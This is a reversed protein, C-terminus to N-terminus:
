ALKFAKSFMNKIITQKPKQELGPQKNHLIEGEGERERERTNKRKKGYYNNLMIDTKTQLTNFDEVNQNQNGNYNSLPIKPCKAEIMYKQLLSQQNSEDPAQVRAKDKSFIM